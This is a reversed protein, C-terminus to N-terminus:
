KELYKQSEEKVKALMAEVDTVLGDINTKPDIAELTVTKEEILIKALNEKNVQEVIERLKQEDYCGCFEKFKSLQIRSITRSFFIINRRVREDCIKDWMKVYFFSFNFQTAFIPKRGKWITMTVENLDVKPPLAGIFQDYSVHSLYSACSLSDITSPIMDKQCPLHLCHLLLTRAAEFDNLLIHNIGAYYLELAFIRRHPNAKPIIPVPKESIATLFLYPAMFITHNAKSLVELISLCETEKKALVASRAFRMMIGSQVRPELESIVKLTKKCAEYTDLPAYQEPITLVLATYQVPTLEMRLYNPANNPTFQERLESAWETVKSIDHITRVSNITQTISRLVHMKKNRKQLNKESM